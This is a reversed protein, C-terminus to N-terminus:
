RIFKVSRSRGNSKWNVVYIGPRLSGVDAGESAKFSLVERGGADYVRATFDLDSLSDAGFHLRHSESNYALAYDPTDDFINVVSNDNSNAADIIANIDVYESQRNAFHKLLNTVRASVYTKLDTVYEDYTSFLVVENYYRKDIGWRQYNLQQSEDLLTSLSDIKNLLKAELGNVYLDAYKGFVQQQFWPDKWMQQLWNRMGSNDHAYDAMLKNESNGQLIKQQNWRSGTTTYDALRNDNGFAIDYDWMPGFFLRNDDAEKYFYLSWLCDPNATIESALYWSVLSTSDVMARYGWVSDAFNYAFLRSEFENVHDRIYKWQDFVIEDADPYHIRVPIRSRSAYFGDRRNIEDFDAFGDIELLYGGTINSEETIPYDQETIHVRKKRVDIQDSIQYNGLYEGNLTLDVFKAAPTFVQGCLDGVYSALANRFLTKDAHNALLTWKKANARDSGLFKTKERFKIRYPKKPLGWTSNGRGRIAISDEYLVEDNEDVLWLEAWVEETKSTVPLGTKTDIYLHPLNTLRERQVTEQAWGKPLSLMMGLLM